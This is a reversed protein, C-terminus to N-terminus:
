AHLRDYEAIKARVIAEVNGYWERVSAEPFEVVPGRLPVAEANRKHGPLSAVFLTCEAIQRQISSDWADGGRLESEDFWVEIGDTRTRLAQAIRRAADADQSAYSLFVAKSACTEM